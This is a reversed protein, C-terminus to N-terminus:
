NENYVEAKDVYQSDLENSVAQTIKHEDSELGAFDYATSSYAVVGNVTVTLQYEIESDIAFDKYDM